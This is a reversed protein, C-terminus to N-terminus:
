NKKKPQFYHRKFDCSNRKEKKPRRQQEQKCLEVLRQKCTISDRKAIYIAHKQLKKQVKKAITKINDPVSKFECSGVIRTGFNEVFCSTIDKYWHNLAQDQQLFNKNKQTACLIAVSPCPKLICRGIADCTIEPMCLQSFAPQHSSPQNNFLSLFLVLHSIVIEM